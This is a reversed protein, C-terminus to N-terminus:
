PMKGQINFHAQNKIKKSKPFFQVEKSYKAIKSGKEGQKDTNNDFYYILNDNFM